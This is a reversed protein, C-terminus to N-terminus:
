GRACGGSRPWPAACAAGGWGCCFAARSKPSIPAGAGASGSFPVGRGQRAARAQAYSVLRRLLSGPIQWGPVKEKKAPPADKPSLHCPAAISRRNSRRVAGRLLMPGVCANRHDPAATAQQGRNHARIGQITPCANVSAPFTQAPGSPYQCPLAGCGETQAKRRMWRGKCPLSQLCIGGFLSEQLPLQRCLRRLPANGAQPPSLKYLEAPGQGADTPSSAQM